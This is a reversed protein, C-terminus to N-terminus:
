SSTALAEWQIVRDWANQWPSGPDIFVTDVTNFRCWDAVAHAIFEPGNDCRVFGPVGRKLMLQDLVAVVGDADIGRDVLIAPCERLHVRSHREAAEVEQWLRHHRVPFGSAVRREAPDPLVLRGPDRFGDVTEEQVAKTSAIGRPAVPATDTQRQRGVGSTTCGECCSAVGM